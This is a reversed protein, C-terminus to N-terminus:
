DRIFIFKVDDIDISFRKSDPDSGVNTINEVERILSMYALSELKIKVETYLRKPKLLTFQDAISAITELSGHSEQTNEEM